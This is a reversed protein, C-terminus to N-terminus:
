ECREACAAGPWDASGRNCSGLSLAWDWGPCSWDPGGAGGGPAGGGSRLDAPCGSPVEGPAIGAGGGPAGPSISIFGTGSSGPLAAVGGCILCSCLTIGKKSYHYFRKGASSSSPSSPICPLDPRELVTQESSYAVQMVTILGHM